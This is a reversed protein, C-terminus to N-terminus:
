CDFGIPSLPLSFSVAFCFRYFKGAASILKYGRLVPKTYFNYLDQGNTQDGCCFLNREAHPYVDCMM